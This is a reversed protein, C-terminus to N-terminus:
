DSEGEGDLPPNPHPHHESKRLTGALVFVM